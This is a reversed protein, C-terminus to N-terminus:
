LLEDDDASTIARKIKLLIQTRWKDLRSVNDFDAVASTFEQADGEEVAQTIKDLLTYERTDQFKPDMDLYKDLARRVGVADSCCLHCLGAHFFHATVGWKLLAVDLSASAVQEYIEVAKEYNELTAHHTAVKVLCQNANSTQEETQYYDAASTLNRIAGELDGESEQLEGVEKHYKAAQAFRGLEVQIGVAKEYCDAADAISTKKFATAADIYASCAEYNSKLSIHMEAIRRFTEGAEQFKKAQKFLVSAKQLYELADEKKNGFFSFSKLKKDAKAVLEVAQDEPSAM